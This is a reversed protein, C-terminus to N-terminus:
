RAPVVVTGTASTALIPPDLVEAASASVSPTGRCVVHCTFEITRSRNGVRTVVATVEVVDGARVPAHFTVASYGAFLGEDGDTRICVETAVDGFLALSYAGDVLNGAYHAHSYPVYRRHVVRTGLKDSM